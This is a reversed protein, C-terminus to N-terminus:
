IINKILIFERNFRYFKFYYYISYGSGVSIFAHSILILLSGVTSVNKTDISLNIIGTLINSNLFIILGILKSDVIEFFAFTRELIKVLAPMVEEDVMEVQFYKETQKTTLLLTTLIYILLIAFAWLFTSIMVKKKIFHLCKQYYPKSTAGESM